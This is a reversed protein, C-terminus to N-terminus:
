QKIPDGYYVVRLSQIILPMAKEKDQPTLSGYFTDMKSAAQMLRTNSAPSYRRNNAVQRHLESLEHAFELAAMVAIEINPDKAARERIAAEAKEMKEDVERMYPTRQDPTPPVNSVTQSTRPSRGDLVGEYGMRADPPRTATPTSYTVSAPRSVRPSFDLYSARENPGAQWARNAMARLGQDKVANTMAAQVDRNCLAMKIHEEHAQFDRIFRNPDANKDKSMFFRVMLEAAAAAKDAPARHTTALRLMFAQRWDQQPATFKTHLAANILSVWYVQQQREHLQDGTLGPPRYGTLIPEDFVPGPAYNVEPGRHPAMLADLVNLLQTKDTGMPLNAFAYSMAVEQGLYNMFIERAQPTDGFCEPGYVVLQPRDAQTRGREDVPLEVSTLTLRGMVNANPRNDCSTAYRASVFGNGPLSEILDRIDASRIGARDFGEVPMGAEVRTTTEQGPTQGVGTPGAFSVNEVVLPKAGPRATGGSRELRSQVGARVDNLNAQPSGLVFGYGDQGSVPSKAHKDSGACATLFAGVLAAPLSRSVRKLSALFRSRKTAEHSSAETSRFSEM